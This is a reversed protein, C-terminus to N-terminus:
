RVVLMTLLLVIEVLLLIVAVRFYLQKDRLAADNKKAGDILANIVFMRIADEDDDEQYKEMIKAASPVFVWEDVTWIVCIVMFGLLVVIVLLAVAACPSIVPEKSRDANVLGLGAAFSTFLAAVALLNNARTRVNALTADQMELQKAGANYALELRKDSPAAEPVTRLIRSVRSEGISCCACPGTPRMVQM